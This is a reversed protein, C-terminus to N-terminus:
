TRIMIEGAKRQLFNDGGKRKRGKIFKLGGVKFDAKVKKKLNIFIWGNIGLFESLRAADEKEVYNISEVNESVFFEDAIEKVLSGSIIDLRYHYKSNITILVSYPKRNETRGNIHKLDNRDFKVTDVLVRQKLSDIFSSIKEKSISKSQYEVSQSQSLIRSGSSFILILCFFIYKM